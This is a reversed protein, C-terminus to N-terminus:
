IRAKALVHVSFGDHDGGTLIRWAGLGSIGHAAPTELVDELPLPCLETHTALFRSIVDENEERELSCTIAILLGGPAVHPTMGSLLRLAQRSLRGIEDASIRWKLEPHRRFTGTGTCPLDLIVRDFAGRGSIGRRWPPAGADAVALPLAGRRLRRCNARLVEARALSVDALTIEVAPERALLSFSKGGPAAAADLIREGPRPPPILAAAQSAEDQIYFDGRTFAASTFPNGRRVTLGLSSLTAAEVELGEDILTEALLERGGRDRFALLQLPKPRNNAALLERTGAEGFRDLWREVLFDPHSMEIALRRVPDSEEVPWDELRPARAIRRLVGNVFSAGGRHTLQHAQEVAEHVAAHAPVRDLFLLQYTAIRLPSHLSEEIQDFRRSSAAAIVHDLRRLWRLSGMVLEHLLGQDREDFRAMASDLFSEVPSLSRLTRELVWGAAARVNDQPTRRPTLRRNRGAGTQSAHPLPARRKSM